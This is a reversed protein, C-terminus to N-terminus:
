NAITWTQEGVKVHSVTWETSGKRSFGDTAGVSWRGEGCEYGGDVRDAFVARDGRGQRAWGRGRSLNEYPHSPLVITKSNRRVRVSGAIKAFTADDVLGTALALSEMRKDSPTEIALRTIRDTVTENTNMKNTNM